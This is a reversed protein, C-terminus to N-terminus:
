LGHRRLSKICGRPIVMTDTTDGDPDVHSSITIHDEDEQLLYGTSYIIQPKRPYEISQWGAYTTSDAWCVTVVPYGTKGFKANKM